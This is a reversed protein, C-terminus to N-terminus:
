SVHVQKAFVVLRQKNSYLPHCTLLTVISEGEVPDLVSFDTPTVIKKRLVQYTLTQERTQITFQDNEKLEDLRNFFKGFTNSRHGAIMYNQGTIGLEGSESFHGVAFRLQEADTGEVIPVELHIEPITLIGLTRDDDPVEPAAQKAELQGPQQQQPVSQTSDIEADMQTEALHNGTQEKGMEAALAQFAAIREDTHMREALVLGGYVAFSLLGLALFLWSWKRM